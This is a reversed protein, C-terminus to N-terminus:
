LGLFVSFPGQSVYVGGYTHVGSSGVAVGGSFNPRIPEGDAGCSALFLLSATMLAMPKLLTM